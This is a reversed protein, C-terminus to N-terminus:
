QPTLYEAGVANVGAVTWTGDLTGDKHIRYIVLGVKGNLEYGAALTQEDLMCIGTSTAGGTTWVIDCTYDSTPTIEVTGGYSSGDLNVGRVAYTGGVQQATAPGALILALALAIGRM